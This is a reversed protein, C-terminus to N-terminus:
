SLKQTITDKNIQEVRQSIELIKQNTGNTAVIAEESKKIAAENVESNVDIKKAIGILQREREERSEQIKLASAKAMAEMKEQHKQAAFKAAGTFYAAMLTGFAAIVLSIGEASFSSDSFFTM